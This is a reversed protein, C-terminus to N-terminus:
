FQFTTGLSLRRQKFASELSHKKIVKANRYLVLFKSNKKIYVLIEM